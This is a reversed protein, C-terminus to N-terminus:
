TKKTQLAEQYMYMYCCSNLFSNPNVEVDMNEFDDNTSTKDNHAKCPQLIEKFIKITM